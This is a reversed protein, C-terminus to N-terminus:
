SYTNDEGKRLVHRNLQKTLWEERKNLCMHSVDRDSSYLYWKLMLVSLSSHICRGAHWTISNLETNLGIRVCSIETNVRSHYLM